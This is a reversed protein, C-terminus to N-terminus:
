SEPGRGGGTIGFISVLSNNSTLSNPHEVGLERWSIRIVQILLKEADKWWRPNWFAL